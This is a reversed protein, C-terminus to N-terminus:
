FFEIFDVNCKEDLEPLGFDDDTVEFMFKDMESDYNHGKHWTLFNYETSM